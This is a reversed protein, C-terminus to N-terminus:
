LPATKARIDKPAKSVCKSIRCFFRWPLDQSESIGIRPSVMVNRIPAAQELWVRKSGKIHQLNYKKTDIGLAQCLKGPGSCLEELKSKDRRQEMANLGEDPELARILVAKPHDPPGVVFNICHYMGYILYVYVTGTPGFMAENRESRHRYAHCAKDISSGYAETEVIVGSVRKGNQQVVLRKGLCWRATRVVDGQEAYKPLIIRNAM